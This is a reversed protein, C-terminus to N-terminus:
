SSAAEHPATAEVLGGTWAMGHSAGRWAQDRGKQHAEFILGYREGEGEDDPGAPVVRVVCGGFGSPKAKAEHLYIWGGILAQADVESIKWWGSRYTQGELHVMNRYRGGEHRCLLHIAKAM